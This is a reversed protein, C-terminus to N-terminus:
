RRWWRKPKRGSHLGDDADGPKHLLKALGDAAPKLSFKKRRGAKPRGLHSMLIAKGGRDIISKITPVASRIRRDDTVQLIRMWRCTSIWGCWCGSAKSM